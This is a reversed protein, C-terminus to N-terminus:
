FSLPELTVGRHCAPSESNCLPTVECLSVQTSRPPAATCHLPYTAFVFVFVFACAFVFAIVFVFAFVFVFLSVSSHCGLAIVFVFVIVVSLSVQTSRLPKLATAGASLSARVQQYDRRISEVRGGMDGLCSVSIFM